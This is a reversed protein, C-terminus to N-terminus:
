PKPHQCLRRAFVLPCATSRRGAFGALRPFDIRNRQKLPVIKNYCRDEAASVRARRERVRVASGLLFM